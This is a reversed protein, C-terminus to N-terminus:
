QPENPWLLDLRSTCDSKSNIKKGCRFVSSRTLSQSGHPFLILFCLVTAFEQFRNGQVVQFLMAITPRVFAPSFIRNQLKTKEISHGAGGVASGRNRIQPRLHNRHGLLCQITGRSRPFFRKLHTLPTACM